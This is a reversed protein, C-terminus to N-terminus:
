ADVIMENMEERRKQAEKKRSKKGLAIREKASTYEAYEASPNSLNAVIVLDQVICVTTPTM